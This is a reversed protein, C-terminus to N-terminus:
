VQDFVKYLTWITVFVFTLVVVTLWQFAIVFRRDKLKALKMSLVTHAVYVLVGYVVYLVLYYWQEKYFKALSFATYRADVQIESYRIYSAGLIAIAIVILGSIIFPLLFSRDRLYNRFTAKM